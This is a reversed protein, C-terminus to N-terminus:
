KLLVLIYPTIPDKTRDKRLRSAVAIVRQINTYLSLVDLIVLVSGEDIQGLDLLKSIFHQTYSVYSKSTPMYDKVYADM